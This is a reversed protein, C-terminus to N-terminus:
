RSETARAIVNKWHNMAAHINGSEVLDDETDQIQWWEGSSFCERYKLAETYLASLEKAFMYSELEDDLEAHSRREPYWPAESEGSVFGVPEGSEGLAEAEDPNVVVIDTNWGEADFDLLHLGFQMSPAQAVDYGEDPIYIPEVCIEMMEDGHKKALKVLFNYADTANTFRVLIDSAYARHIWATAM